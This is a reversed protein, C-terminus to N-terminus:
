RVNKQIQIKKYILFSTLYFDANYISVILSDFDVIGNYLGATYVNGSADISIGSSEDASISGGFSTAWQFDQANIQKSVSLITLM